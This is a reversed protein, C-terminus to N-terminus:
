AALAIAPARRPQEPQSYDASTWRHQAVDFEWQQGCAMCAYFRRAGRHLNPFVIPELFYPATASRPQAILSRCAACHTSMTLDRTTNAELGPSNLSM